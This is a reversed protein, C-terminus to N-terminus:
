DDLRERLMRASKKKPARIPRKCPPEERKEQVGSIVGFWYQLNGRNASLYVSGADDSEEYGRVFDACPGVGYYGFDAAGYLFDYWDVGIKRCVDHVTGGQQGLAICLNRTRNAPNM